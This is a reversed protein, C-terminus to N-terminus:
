QKELEITHNIYARQATSYRHKKIVAGLFNGTDHQFHLTLSDANTAKLQVTFVDTRDRPYDVVPGYFKQGAYYAMAGEFILTQNKIEHSTQDAIFIHGKCTYEGLEIELTRGPTYEQASLTCAYAFAAIVLVIRILNKM